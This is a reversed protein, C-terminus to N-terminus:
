PPQADNVGDGTMAVIEGNEKLAEIIRMKAEPFMRSFIHKDRVEKNLAPGELRMLEDGAITRDYGRLGIERAIAASTIANDGTVIKVDIGATYFAELVSGINKKPPDYFSTMGLLRFPIDRQDSPYERDDLRGEAIALM